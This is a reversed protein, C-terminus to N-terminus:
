TQWVQWSQSLRYLEPDVDPEFGDVELTMLYGAAQLASRCADAISRTAAYTTAFVDLQVVCADLDGDGRLHNQPVVSIRQLLIAPAALAQTRRVPEIRSAPVLAIVAGSAALVDRVAQIAM